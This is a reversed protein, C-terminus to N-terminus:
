DFAMFFDLHFKKVIAISGESRIDSSPLFEDIENGYEFTLNDFNLSLNLFLIHEFM